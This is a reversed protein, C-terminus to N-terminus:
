GEDNKATHKMPFLIGHIMMTFGAVTFFIRIGTLVNDTSQPSLSTIYWTGAIIILGGLIEPINIKSRLKKM